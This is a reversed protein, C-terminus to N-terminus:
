SVYSKAFKIFLNFYTMELRITLVIQSFNSEFYTKQLFQLGMFIKSCVTGSAHLADPPFSVSQM